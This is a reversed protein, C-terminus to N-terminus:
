RPGGPLIVIMVFEPRYPMPGLDDDDPGKKKGKVPPAVKALYVEVTQDVKLSDAEVPFGPLGTKDRREELEKKTWKKEFGQDDFEIPPIISRYKVMDVSRLELERKSYLQTQRKAIEGQFAGADRQYNQLATFRAKFDKTTQATYQQKALEAQRKVKWSNFDYVKKQDIEQIEVFLERSEGIRKIKTVMKQGFVLKEIAKKPEDKKKEDDKKDAKKEEKKEEKKEDQANSAPMLLILVALFGLVAGISRKM